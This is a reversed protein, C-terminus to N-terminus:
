YNPRYFVDAIREETNIGSNFNTTGLNGGPETIIKVLGKELSATGKLIEWDYIGNKHEDGFGTPFTVSFTTYRANTVTATAVLTVPQHSYQSTLIFNYNAGLELNTLNLTFEQQLQTEPVLLTM